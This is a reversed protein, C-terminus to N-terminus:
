LMQVAHGSQVDPDDQNNYKNYANYHYLYNHVNYFYDSCPDHYSKYDSM